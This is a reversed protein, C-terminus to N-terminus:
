SHHRHFTKRFSNRAKKVTQEVTEKRKWAGFTESWVDSNEEVSLQRARAHIAEEIFRKKTMGHRKTVRELEVVVSEDLRTSFIKDM